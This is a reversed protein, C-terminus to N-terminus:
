FLLKNDLWIPFIKKRRYILIHISKGYKECVYLFFFENAFHQKRVAVNLLFTAIEEPLSKHVYFIITAM